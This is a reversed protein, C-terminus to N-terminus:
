NDFRSSDIEPNNIESLSREYIGESQHFTSVEDITRLLIHYISIINRTWKFWSIHVNILM